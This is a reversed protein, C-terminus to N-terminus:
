RELKTNVHEKMLAIDDFSLFSLQQNRVKMEISQLKLIIFIPQIVLLPLIDPIKKLM